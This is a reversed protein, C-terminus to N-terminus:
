RNIVNVREVVNGNKIIEIRDGAVIDSREVVIVITRGDDLEVSLETGQKKMIESGAAGGLLAGGIMGLPATFRNSSNSGAASGLVGGIMGGIATGKGDDAITVAGSRVVVGTLVTKITRVSSGSYEVGSKPACGFFVLSIFIAFFLRKM